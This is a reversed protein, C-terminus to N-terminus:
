VIDDPDVTIAVEPPLTGLAAILARDPWRAPAVRVVARERVRNREIVEAPLPGVLDYGKCAAVVAGRLVAAHAPTGSWTLGIFTAFPPYDYTQRDAAEARYFDLATGTTMTRMVLNDSQRTEIILHETARSRLQMLISLAHEHARWASLSLTSDISAVAVVEIPQSLYPLMRETGVVLTGPGGYFNQMLRKAERHTPATDASFLTIDTKPQAKKLEDYVREVGIGLTVLNWGNCHPCKINAPVVAGSRHSIFANGSPTKHLTMPAGTAPDSIPTGCDNCVTLPAIGRRAAYVAARGGQALASRITELTGSSLTAFTRREKKTEDSRRLDVVDVAVRGGPRLQPRTADEALGAEVLYRTEVRVPFDAFIIRVGQERAIFLAARRLDLYPHERSKYSRASEREIIIADPNHLPVSLAPPTGIVLVPEAPSVARNWGERLAKQPTDSTLTIVREEIGRGLGAALTEVEILSPAIILLSRGHAFAERVMNRYTAIREDPDAQMVLVEPRAEVGTAAETPAAIRAAMLIPRFTLAAIVAGEPALHFEAVRQVARMFSPALIKRAAARGVKRLAFDAAKLDLKQERADVASVVLAPVLKKRLPVTIISGPAAAERSFFTLEGKLPGRVIPIVRVAYM